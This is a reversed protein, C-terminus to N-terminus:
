DGLKEEGRDECDTVLKKKRKKKKTPTLQGCLAHTPRSTMHCGVEQELFLWCVWQVISDSCYFVYFPEFM